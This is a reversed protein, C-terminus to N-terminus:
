NISLKGSKTLQKEFQIWIKEDGDRWKAKRYFQKLLKENLEEFLNIENM